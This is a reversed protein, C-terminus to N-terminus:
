LAALFSHHTFSSPRTFYVFAFALFFLLLCVSVLGVFSALPPDLPPARPARVGGYKRGFHPGFPQFFIKQLGRIEPDPHGPGGRIHLDPDAM